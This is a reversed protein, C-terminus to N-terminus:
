TGNKEAAAAIRAAYDKSWEILSPLPQQLNPTKSFASVIVALVHGPTGSIAGNYNSVFTSFFKTTKATGLDQLFTQLKHITKIGAINCATTLQSLGVTDDKDEKVDVGSTTATGVFSRVLKSQQVFQRLSVSNIEIDLNGLSVDNSVEKQLIRKENRILVFEEDALELLGALRTLRRRSATPVDVEQKYQLAHSIAAWSHQLVTRIQIECTLQSFAKWEALRSRSRGLRAIKHVSLYGFQDPALIARKDVSNKGDVTFERRILRDVKDVDDVYYLVIRSGCLDTIEALPDKYSKGERRIKHSFSEVTKSRSEVVQFKVDESNLLDQLLIKLKEAFREYLPFIERYKAEASDNVPHAPVYDKIPFARRLDFAVPFKRKNELPGKWIIGDECQWVLYLVLHV